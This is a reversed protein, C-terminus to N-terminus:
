LKRWLLSSVLASAFNVSQVQMFMINLILLIIFSLIKTPQTMGYLSLKRKSWTVREAQDETEFVKDEVRYSTIKEIKSMIMLGDM